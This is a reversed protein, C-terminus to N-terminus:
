KKIIERLSFASRLLRSPTKSIHFYPVQKAGFARFFREIPEIMSGEFDFSKSVTSAFQIAKWMCLSTAGSSRLKPDGGGMLYYASDNDWILYLGAHPTGLEDKAIFIKRQGRESAADDIKRIFAPSCPMRMGQRSFVLRNLEIFEDLSADEVVTIKARGSAKKIERRINEQFGSMVRELDNLSTLQYTYRTYQSFGHWYFPLWNERSFHWNQQFHHHKPLQSILQNMLEKERSLRKAYKADSPRLWPGLNQTLAPQTIITVGYKKKLLFPMSAHIENGKEVIVVDWNEGAVSDLWWAQSFIPISSEQECLKRYKDTNTM